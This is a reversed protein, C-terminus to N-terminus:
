GVANSVTALLKMSEPDTVCVQAPSCLYLVGNLLLGRTDDPTYDLAFAGKDEFKTGNWRFLRYEAGGNGLASWGILGSAPDAFLAGRATLDGAPLAETELSGLVRPSAPTSFDYVTLKLRGDGAPLSLALAADAGWDRLLLTEGGASFSGCLKPNLPDSLDALTLTDGATIWANCRLFRCASLGTEGGLKALAGVADLNQDLIALQSEALHSSNQANTWGHADDTYVSFSREDVQAAVRLKGDRLDMAGPDALAGYLVCGENLTLGAEDLRLRKIETEAATKYDVVTYPSEQRPASAEEKWRTRALLLDQGEVCVAETGDTFGLADVFRGDEMRVAAAVTLAAKGPDPCLYLEGAQLTMTRDNERLKPLITEAEEAKPLSLLTKQTVVCLTGDMLCAEVLSGEVALASFQKPAAPDSLDLLVIRTEVGEPAEDEDDWAVTNWLIAIRNQWLYLRDGWREGAREVKTYSRVASSAGAASVAVLGYSDLMYIHSGDTVVTDGADTCLALQAGTAPAEPDETQWRDSERQGASSLATLVTQADAAPALEGLPSRRVEGREGYVPGAPAPGDEGCASLIGTLLILVLLFCVTKKM